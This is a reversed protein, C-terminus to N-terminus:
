PGMQPALDLVWIGWQGGQVSHYAVRQGDPSWAFEQASADALLRHSQGTRLDLVWAGDRRVQFVIREGDPSVAPTRVLRGPM